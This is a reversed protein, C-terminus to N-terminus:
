SNLAHLKYVEAHGKLEVLGKLEITDPNSTEVAGEIGSMNAGAHDVVLGELDGSGGPSESLGISTDTDIITEGGFRVTKVDADDRSEAYFGPELELKSM